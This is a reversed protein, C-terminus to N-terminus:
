FPLDFALAGAGTIFLSLATAFLLTYFMRSPISHHQWRTNFVIMKLSLAMVALAAYQTFAGTFLFAGFIIEGLGILWVSFTGYPFWPLVLVNKLEHRYKLHRFGLTILIGAVFVRLLLYAFMALFQIPFPNLM